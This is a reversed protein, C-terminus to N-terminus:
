GQDPAQQNFLVPIRLPPAMYHRYQRREHGKRRPSPLYGCVSASSLRPPFLHTDFQEKRHLVAQTTHIKPRKSFLTDIAACPSLPAVLGVGVCFLSSSWCGRCNVLYQTNDSFSFTNQTIREENKLRRPGTVALM